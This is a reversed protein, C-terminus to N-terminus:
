GVEWHDALAEVALDVTRSASGTVVGPLEGARDLGLTGKVTASAAGAIADLDYGGELFAVTRNAPVVEALLNAMAAYDDTRLRLGGLPDDVHADYGASVLLWDPSFQRVVPLVVRGFAALYSEATTGNPLAINVTTGEGPGAGTETVWGTGPYFPFEHLSVYLVDPDRYFTRQTGNGHHVDWDVVAVRDGRGRLYAAAVAINNFFCFGMAQAREAHHGPPRVAVFATDARRRELAGIAAVGAGAAHVAADWSAPVAYTDPDLHGGGRLCFDHFTDIYTADHVQELLERDVRPATLDEIPVPTSRIGDVVADIRAVREPHGVPTRHHRSLEHTVLLLSM